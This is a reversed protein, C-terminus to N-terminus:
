VMEPAGPCGCPRREVRRLSLTADIITLRVMRDRFAHQGPILLHDSTGSRERSLSSWGNLWIIQVTCDAHTVCLHGTVLDVLLSSTEAGLVVIVVHLLEASEILGETLTYHGNSLM